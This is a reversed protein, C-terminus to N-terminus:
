PCCLQIADCLPWERVAADTKKSIDIVVRHEKQLAARTAGGRGVIRGVVVAPVRMDCETPGDGSAEIEDMADHHLDDVRDCAADPECKGDICVDSSHFDDEPSLVAPV